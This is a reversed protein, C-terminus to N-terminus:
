LIVEESFGTTDQEEGDNLRHKYKNFRDIEEGIEKFSKERTRYGCTPCVYWVSCNGLKKKDKILQICCDPCFEKTGSM